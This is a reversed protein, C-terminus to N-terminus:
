LFARKDYRCSRKIRKIFTMANMEQEYLQIKVQM